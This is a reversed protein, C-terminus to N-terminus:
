RLYHKATPTFMYYIIALQISTDLVLFGIFFTNHIGGWWGDVFAFWLFALNALSLAMTGSGAWGRGLWLGFAVNALAMPFVALFFYLFVMGMFDLPM